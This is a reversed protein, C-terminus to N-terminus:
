SSGGFVDRDFCVLMAGEGITEPRFPPTIPFSAAVFDVVILSFQLFTEFVEFHPIRPFQSLKYTCAFVARASVGQRHPHGELAEPSFLGGDQFIFTLLPM